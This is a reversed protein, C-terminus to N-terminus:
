IFASMLYLILAPLKLPDYRLTEVSNVFDMFHCRGAAQKEIITTFLVRYSAMGVSNSVMKQCQM